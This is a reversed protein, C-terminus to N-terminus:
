VVILNLINGISFSALNLVFSLKFPNIKNYQMVKKYLLTEILFIIIELVIITFNYEYKNFIFNINISTIVLIPNTLLNVCFVNIFDRRDKIGLLRSFVLEIIETSLLCYLIIYPIHNIRMISEIM